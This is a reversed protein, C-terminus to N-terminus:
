ANNNAIVNSIFVSSLNQKDFFFTQFYTDTVTNNVLEIEM